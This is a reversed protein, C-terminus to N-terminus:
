ECLGLRELLVCMRLLDETLELKGNEAGRIAGKAMLKEVAGRGWEPLDALTHYIM